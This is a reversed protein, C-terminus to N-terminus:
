YRVFIIERKIRSLRFTMLFWTGSVMGIKLLQIKIEEIQIEQLLKRGRATLKVEEGGLNIVKKKALKKLIEVVGNPRENLFPKLIIPLNPLALSSIVIVGIGILKIIEKENDGIRFRRKIQKRRARKIIIQKQTASKDTM